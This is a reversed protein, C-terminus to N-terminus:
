QSQWINVVNVPFKVGIMFDNAIIPVKKLPEQVHTWIKSKRVIWYATSFNLTYIFLLGNKIHMRNRQYSSTSYQVIMLFSFNHFLFGFDWTVHPRWPAATVTLRWMFNIITCTLTVSSVNKILLTGRIIWWYGRFQKYMCKWIRNKRISFFRFKLENALSVYFYFM